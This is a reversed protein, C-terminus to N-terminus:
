SLIGSYRRDPKKFRAISKIPETLQRTIDRQRHEFM